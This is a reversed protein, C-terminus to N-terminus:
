LSFDDDWNIEVWWDDESYGESVYYKKLCKPCQGPMWDEGNFDLDCTPCYIIM